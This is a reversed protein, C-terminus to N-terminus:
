TPFHTLLTESQPNFKLFSYSPEFVEKNAFFPLMGIFM